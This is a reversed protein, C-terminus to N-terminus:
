RLHDVHQALSKNYILIDDFFVLVIRRLQLQFVGNMLNQFSAPANTIGFLM